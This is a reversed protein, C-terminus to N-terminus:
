ICTSTLTLDTEKGAERALRREDVRSEKRVKLEDIPQPGPTLDIETTGSVCNGTLIASVNYASEAHGHPGFDHEYLYRGVISM